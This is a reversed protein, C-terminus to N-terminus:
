VELQVFFSQLRYFISVYALLWTWTPNIERPSAPQNSHKSWESIKIRDLACTVLKEEGVGTNFQDQDLFDGESQNVLCILIVAAFHLM